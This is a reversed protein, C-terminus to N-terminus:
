RCITKIESAKNPCNQVSCSECMRGTAITDIDAQAGFLQVRMRDNAKEMREVLRNTNLYMSVLADSM